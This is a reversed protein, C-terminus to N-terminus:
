AIGAALAAAAAPVLDDAHLPEASFVRTAVSTRLPEIEVDGGRLEALADGLARPLAILSEPVGVFYWRAPLLGDVGPVPAIVCRAWVRADREIRDPRALFAGRGLGFARTAVVRGERIVAFATVDPGLRLVGGETLGSLAILRGLGYAGSTVTGRRKAGELAATAASALVLPALAVDTRVEVFRGQFGVLSSLPRGDLALGAIDDRLQVTAVGRLAPDNMASDRASAEADARAEATARAVEGSAMPEDLSEREFTTSVHYTRVDDGDIAAIVRAARERGEASAFAASIVAAVAERHVVLGGDIAGPRVASQGVGTVRLRGEERHGVVVRVRDSALEVGGVPDARQPKAPKSALSM